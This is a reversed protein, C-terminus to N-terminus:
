FDPYCASPEVLLSLRINGLGLFNTDTKNFLQGFYIGCGSTVLLYILILESFNTVVSALKLFDLPDIVELYLDM